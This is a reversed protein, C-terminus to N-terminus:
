RISFGKWSKSSGSSPTASHAASGAKQKPLNKLDTDAIDAQLKTTSPLLYVPHHVVQVYTIVRTGGSKGKGKSTSCKPSQDAQWTGYALMKAHSPCGLSAFAAALSRALEQWHCSCLELSASRTLAAGGFDERTPYFM